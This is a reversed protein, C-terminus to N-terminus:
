IFKMLVNITNDYIYYATIKSVAQKTTLRPPVYDLAYTTILESFYSMHLPMLNQDQLVFQLTINKWLPLDNSILRAVSILVILGKLRQCVDKM